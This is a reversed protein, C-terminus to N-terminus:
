KDKTKKTRYVGWKKTPNKKIKKQKVTIEFGAKEYRYM